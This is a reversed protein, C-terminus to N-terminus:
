EHSGGDVFKGWAVAVTKLEQEKMQLPDDSVLPIIEHRTQIDGDNKRRSDHARLTKDPLHAVRLRLIQGHLEQNFVTAGNELMRLLKPIKRRPFVSNTDKLRCDAM